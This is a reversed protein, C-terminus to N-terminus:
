ERSVSTAAPRREAPSRDSHVGDLGGDRALSDLRRSDDSAEMRKPPAARGEGDACPRPHVQEVQLLWDVSRLISERERWTAKSWSHTLLVYAKDIFVGSVLGHRRLSTIEDMSRERHSM